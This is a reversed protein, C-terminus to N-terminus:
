KVQEYNAAFAMINGIRQLIKLVILAFDVFNLTANLLFFLIFQTHDTSHYINSFCFLCNLMGISSWFFVSQFKFNYEFNDLAFSMYLILVLDFIATLCGSILFRIVQQYTDYDNFRFGIKIQMNCQDTHSFLSFDFGLDELVRTELFKAKDVSLTVNFYCNNSQDKSLITMKKELTFYSLDRDEIPMKVKFLFKNSSALLGDNLTILFTYSEESDVTMNVFKLVTRDLREAFIKMSARGHNNLFNNHTQNFQEVHDRWFGRFEYKEVTNILTKTSSIDGKVTVKRLKSILFSSMLFIAMIAAALSLTLKKPGM